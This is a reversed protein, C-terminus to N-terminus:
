TAAGLRARLGDLCAAMMRDHNWVLLPRVVYSALALLRGVRVEQHFDLRTGGAVEVLHFGVTGTLDGAVEVLLHDLDRSAAPLVLDLTYPLRSRCLVRADDPGLSAVAVVQPWWEVYRELDVLVAHVERRPAAVTWAGDFTYASRM